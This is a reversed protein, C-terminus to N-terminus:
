GPHAGHHNGKERLGSGGGLASHNYWAPGGIYGGVKEVYAVTPSDPNYLRVFLDRIDGETEPMNFALVKNGAYRVAIGGAKGPDVAIQTPGDTLSETPPLEALTKITGSM